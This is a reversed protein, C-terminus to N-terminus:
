RETEAAADDDTEESLEGELADLRDLLVTEEADFTAEDIEGAELAHHLATLRNRIADREAAREEDVADAVQRAVWLLGKFPATLLM